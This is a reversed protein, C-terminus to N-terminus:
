RHQHPEHEERVPLALGVLGSAACHPAGSREVFPILTIHARVSCDTSRQDFGMIATTSCNSTMAEALPRM